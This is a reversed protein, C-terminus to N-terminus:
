QAFAELLSELSLSPDPKSSHCEFCDVKVAAYDHCTRCFHQPSEYSVPTDTDDNVAHCTLCGKLSNKVGFIGKRVTDDRQHVLYKMHDKRIEVDGHFDTGALAKPITPLLVTTNAGNDTVTSNAGTEVAFSNLIFMAFVFLAIRFHM